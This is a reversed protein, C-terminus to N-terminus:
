TGRRSLRHALVTFAVGGLTLAVVSITGIPGDRFWDIVTGLIAICFFLAAVRACLTSRPIRLGAM